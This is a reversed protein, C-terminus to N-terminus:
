TRAGVMEFLAELRAAIRASDAPSYDTELRLYPLRLEQEALRKVRYSEVAYTLCSQWILEVVCEARYERALIRLSAFRRDNPTRVSCPLQFYKRALARLPDPADEPVDELIPKLGTCNEQCVVLGGHEEILDMVREAGHVLPVGTLLVRVRRRDAAPKAKPREGDESARHNAGAALVREYQALDAPIASIISKFDLLQRGTFPPDDAKMMEALRRRLARERNMVAIAARLKAPTISVAYRRELFQQFRRLEEVWYPLAEDDDKAPLALVYTPRSEGMLEFMKKKGDCTTEAILLDAMELFPNAREILYGYTSKILPCLTAPLHLEAAPITDPDGGCLCVPVGGAALILERPAYECMIGVIPRRAAHAQQAYSKCNAVMHGFWALPSEAAASPPQKADPSEM